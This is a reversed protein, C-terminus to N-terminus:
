LNLYIEDLASLELDYESKLQMRLMALCENIPMTGNFTWHEYFKWDWEFESGYGDQGKYNSGTLTNGISSKAEGILDNIQYYTTM